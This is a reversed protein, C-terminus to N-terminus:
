RLVLIVNYSRSHDFPSYSHPTSADETPRAWEMPEAYLSLVLRDLPRWAGDVTFCTHVGLRSVHFLLPILEQARMIRMTAYLLIRQSM